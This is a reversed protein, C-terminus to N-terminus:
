VVKFGKAKAAELYQRPIAKEVMKGEKNKGKILVLNGVGQEQFDKRLKELKPASRKEALQEVQSRSLSRVGYQDYIDKIESRIVDDIETQIKMSNIIRERGAQSNSLTPLMNNFSALEFGSVQAGYYNKANKQFANTLKTYEQVYGKPDTIEPARLSGDKNLVFPRSLVNPFGGKKNLTQM